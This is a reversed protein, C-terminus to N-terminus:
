GTPEYMVSTGGWREHPPPYVAQIGYERDSPGGVSYGSAAGWGVRVRNAIAALCASSGLKIMKARFEAAPAIMRRPPVLVISDGTEFGGTLDEAFATPFVLFSIQVGEIGEAGPPNVRDHFYDDETFTISVEGRRPRRSEFDELGWATVGVSPGTEIPRSLPNTIIGVGRPRGNDDRGSVIKSQAGASFQVFGDMHYSLKVRDAASFPIVLAEDVAFEGVRNIRPFKMLAGSREKHGPPTVAFGGDSLPVVKCIRVVRNGDECFIVATPPRNGSPEM